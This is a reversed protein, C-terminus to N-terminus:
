QTMDRRSTDPAFAVVVMGLLSVLSTVRGIRAYDGDFVGMLAGTAFITLAGGGM